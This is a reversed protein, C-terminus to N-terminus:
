GAAIWHQRFHVADCDPHVAAAHRHEQQVHESDISQTLASLDSGISLIHVHSENWTQMHINMTVLHEDAATQRSMVSTLRTDPVSYPMAHEDHLVVPGHLGHYQLFEVFTSPQTGRWASKALKALYKALKALSVTTM